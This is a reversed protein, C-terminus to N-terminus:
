GAIPSMGASSEPETLDLGDASRPQELGAHVRFWYFDHLTHFTSDEHLDRRITPNLPIIRRLVNRVGALNGEALYVRARLLGGRCVAPTPVAGDYRLISEAGALIPTLVLSPWARDM